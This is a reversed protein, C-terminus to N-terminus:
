WGSPLRQFLGAAGFIVQIHALLTLPILLRCRHPGSTPGTVWIQSVIELAKTLVRMGFSPSLGVTRPPPQVPDAQPHRHETPRRDRDPDM